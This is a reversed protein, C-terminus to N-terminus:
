DFAKNIFRKKIFYYPCSIVYLLGILIIAFFVKIFYTIIKFYKHLYEFIYEIKKEHVKGYCNFFINKNANIRSTIMFIEEFDLFDETSSPIYVEDFFIENIKRRLEKNRRFKKYSFFGDEKEICKIFSYKNQLEHSLSKPILCYLNFKTNKNNDMIYLILKDIIKSNASRIILINRM